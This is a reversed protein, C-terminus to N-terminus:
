KENNLVKSLKIQRIEQLTYIKPIREDSQSERSLENYIEENESSANMEDIYHSLNRFNKEVAYNWEGDYKSICIVLLTKIETDTLELKIDKIEEISWNKYLHLYNEVINEYETNM